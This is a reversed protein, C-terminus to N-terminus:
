KRDGRLMFVLERLYEPFFREHMLSHMARIAAYSDMGSRQPRRTTLNDFVDALAAIKAFSHIGDAALGRPYGRGSCEEHHQGVVLLSLPDAVETQQLIEVGRQPHERLIRKEEVTLADQKKVIAPDIDVKGIDHMLLGAGLIKLELSSLGLRQGLMIGYVSVNVAHVYLDHDTAMLAILSALSERRRLLFEVTSNVVAQARQIGSRLWPKAMVDQVLQVGCAYVAEAVDATTMDADGVLAELHDEMYRVYQGRDTSNIYVDTVNSQQLTNKHKEGFLLDADRYLIFRNGQATKLYLDFGTVSDIRLSHLPIAIHETGAPDM